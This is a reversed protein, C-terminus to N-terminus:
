PGGLCFEILVTGTVTGRPTINLKGTPSGADNRLTVRDLVLDGNAGYLFAATSGTVGDWVLTYGGTASPDATWIIRSIAATGNTIGSVMNPYSNDPSTPTFASGTVGLQYTSSEGLFNLKTLYRKQTKVLDQKVPM